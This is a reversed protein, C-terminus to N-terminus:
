SPISGWVVAWPTFISRSRADGVDARRRRAADLVAGADRQPHGAERRDGDDRPGRPVSSSLGRVRGVIGHPSWLPERSGVVPPEAFNGSRAAVVDGMRAYRGAVPRRARARRAAARARRQVVFLAVGRRAGARRDDRTLNLPGWGMDAPYTYVRRPMGALGLVHMPFFTVNFGVFM